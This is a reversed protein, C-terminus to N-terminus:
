GSMFSARGLVRKIQSCALPSYDPHRTNLGAGLALADLRGHAHGPSPLSVILYADADHRIMM